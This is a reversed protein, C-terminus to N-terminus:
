TLLRRMEEGRLLDCSMVALEQTLMLVRVKTKGNVCAERALLACCM